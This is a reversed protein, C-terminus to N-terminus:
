GLEVDPPSKPGVWGVTKSGQSLFQTPVCGQYAARTPAAHFMQGAAPLHPGTSCRWPM